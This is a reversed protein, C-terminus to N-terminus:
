EMELLFLLSEEVYRKERRHLYVGAIATTLLTGLVTYKM